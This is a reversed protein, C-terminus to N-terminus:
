ALPTLAQTEIMQHWCAFLSFIPIPQNRAGQFRNALALCHVANCHLTDSIAM